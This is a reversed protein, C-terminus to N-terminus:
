PATGGVSSRSLSGRIVAEASFVEGHSREFREQLDFAETELPINMYQFRTQALREVYRRSFEEIGLVQYQVLHVMEHFVVSHPLPAPVLSENVLIVEGFTIAAWSSFDLPIREGVREFESYFGPNDISPVRRFRALTLTEPEFYGMLAQRTTDPLEKSLAMHHARQSRIWETSNEVLYSVIDPMDLQTIDM